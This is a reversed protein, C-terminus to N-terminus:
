ADRRYLSPAVRTWAARGAPKEAKGSILFGGPSLREHLRDWLRAAPEPNLYIGVNRYLILDFPGGDFRFLDAHQWALRDRLSPVVAWANGDPRFYRSKRAESLGSLEEPAFRGTAARALASPRCDVGLLRGRELLGAEDLLIAISYLEHGSSVGAALVHLVGRRRALAPLALDRAADFVAPDRFFETVGILAADLAGARLRPDRRLVARAEEPSRTGLHRLCAPVRRHLVRPRYVSPDVGADRLLDEILPVPTAPDAPPFPGSPAPRATRRPVLPPPEVGAFHVHRLDDM